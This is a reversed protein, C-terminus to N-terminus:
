CPRGMIPSWLLNISSSSSSPSHYTHRTAADEFTTLVPTIWDYWDQKRDHPATFQRWVWFTYNQHSLSLGDRWSSNLWMTQRKSKSPEIFATCLCDFSGHDSPFTPKFTNAKTGLFFCSRTSYFRAQFFDFSSSHFPLGLCAFESLRQPSFLLRACCMFVFNTLHTTVLNNLFNGFAM